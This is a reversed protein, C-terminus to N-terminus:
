NMCQEYLSDYIFNIETESAEGFFEEFEGVGECAYVHCEFSNPKLQKNSNINANISIVGVFFVFTLLM